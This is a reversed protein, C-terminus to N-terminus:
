LSKNISQHVKVQKKNFIPMWDRGYGIILIGLIGFGLFKMQATLLLIIDIAIIVIGIVMTINRKRKNIM